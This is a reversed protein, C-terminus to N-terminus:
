HKYNTSRGTILWEKKKKELREKGLYGLLDVISLATILFELLLDNNLTIIGEEFKM